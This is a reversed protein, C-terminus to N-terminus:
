GTARCEGTRRSSASSAPSPLPSAFRDAPTPASRSRRRTRRSRPVRDARRGARFGSSIGRTARRRRVRLERDIVGDRVRGHQDQRSHRRRGRAAQARRDLRLAPAVRRPDEVRLDDAGGEDHPRREIRAPRRGAPWPSSRGSAERRRRRCRGTRRRHRHAPVRARVDDVAGIRDLHAQTVEVASAEGSAVVAAIQAATLRTLDTM